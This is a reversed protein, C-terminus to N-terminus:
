PPFPVAAEQGQLSWLMVGVAGSIRGEGCALVGQRRPQM